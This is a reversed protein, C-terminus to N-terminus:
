SGESADLLADAREPDLKITVHLSRILEDVWHQFAARRVGPFVEAIREDRTLPHPARRDLLLVIDWGLSTRVPPNVRGVESTGEFLQRGFAEEFYARTHLPVESMALEFGQGDGARHMADALDASLLGPQAALSEYIAQAVVRAQEVRAPPDRTPVIVRAYASTRMEPVTIVDATGRPDRALVADLEAALDAPTRHTREFALEVLRNVLATRTAEIM